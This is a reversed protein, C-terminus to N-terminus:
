GWDANTADNSSIEETVEVYSTNLVMAQSYVGNDRALSGHLEWGKGLMAEIRQAVSEANKGNVIKYKM